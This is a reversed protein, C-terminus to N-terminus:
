VNKQNEKEKLRELAAQMKRNEAKRKVVMVCYSVVFSIGFCVFFMAWPQWMDVPFWDFLIIFAVIATVVLISMCVTRAWVPMKKIWIDTFFIFRIGTLLASLCLFEFAISVPVGQNGLEFMASFGKASNGFALCFVNMTLMTIGFVIMIQSLYDFITKREEV